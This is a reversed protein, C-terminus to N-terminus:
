EEALLRRIKLAVHLALRVDPDELNLRGIEQIRAIRYLLSNRHLNLREAARSLIGHAAFFAELTAVLGASSRRDYDEIAGLTEACFRRLEPSGCLPDLLRYVGLEDFSMCRGPGFVRRGIRLADRAERGAAAIGALGAHVGSIGTSLVYGDAGRLAAGELQAIRAVIRQLPSDPAMAERQRAAALGKGRPAAGGDGAASPRPGQAPGVPWIATFRDEEAKLLAAPAVTRLERSLVDRVRDRAEGPALVGAGSTTGDGHAGDPQPARDLSSVFVTFESKPELGVAQARRAVGELDAWGGALLEDALEGQVRHEAALVADEKALELACVAAARSALLQDLETLEAEPGCLSLFGRVRDRTIVPSVLRSLHRRVATTTLVPPTTATLVQGRVWQNLQAREEVSSLTNGADGESPTPAGHAREPDVLALLRFVADEYAVLRGTARATDSLIAELGREEMSLQALRRFLQTARQQLEARRNFVLGIIARELDTLQTRPLRILPFGRRDAVCVAVQQDAPEVEGALALAAAGEDALGRVVHELTLNDDFVRLSALTAASALVFEGGDTPEFAPPRSRLQMAWTVRRGVGGAGALLKAGSPLVVRLVEAVTVGRGVVPADGESM